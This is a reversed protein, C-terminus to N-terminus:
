GQDSRNFGEETASYDREEHTTRLVRFRSTKETSLDKELSLARPMTTELSSIFCTGYLALVANSRLRCGGKIRGERGRGMGSGHRTGRREKTTCANWTYERVCVCVRAVYIHKHVYIRAHM